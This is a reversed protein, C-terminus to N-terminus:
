SMPPPSFGSTFEFSDPGLWRGLLFGRAQLLNKWLQKSSPEEEQGERCQLNYAQAQGRRGQM